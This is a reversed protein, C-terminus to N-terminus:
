LVEWEVPGLGGKMGIAAKTAITLDAVRRVGSATSYKPNYFGGTDTIRVVVSLGTTPNTVKAKRGVYKVLHAPIAMTLANDDLAQGNAMIMQPDCGLCGTRSYFSAVGQMKVPELPATNVSAVSDYYRIVPKFKPKVPWNGPKTEISPVALVASAMYSGTPHEQNPIFLNSNRHFLVVKALLAQSQAQPLKAEFALAYHPTVTLALVAATLPLVTLVSQLRIQQTM